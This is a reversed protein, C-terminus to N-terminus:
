GITTQLRDSVLAVVRSYLAEDPPGPRSVFAVAALARGVRIHVADVCGDVRGYSSVSTSVYRRAHAQPGLREARVLEAPGAPGGSEESMRRRMERRLCGTAARSDLRRLARRAAAETAYLAVQEQVNSREFTLRRSRVFATAGEYPDLACRLKTATGSEERWSEPFDTIRVLARKALTVDSASQRSRPPARQPAGTTAVASGDGGDRADGCAAVSTAVLLMVLVVGLSRTM